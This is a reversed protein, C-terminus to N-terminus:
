PRIRVVNETAAKEEELHRDFIARQWLLDHMASVIDAAKKIAYVSTVIMAGFSIQAYIYTGFDCLLILLAAFSSTIAAIQSINVFDVYLLYGNLLNHQMLYAGFAGGGICEHIRSFASWSLALVLGNLTLIGVYVPVSVDFNGMDWFGPALKYSFAGAVTISVTLWIPAIGLIGKDDYRRSISRLLSSLFKPRELNTSNETM